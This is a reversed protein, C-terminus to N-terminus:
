EECYDQSTPIIIIEMRWCPFHLVSSNLLKSLSVALFPCLGCSTKTARVEKGYVKKEVLKKQFTM